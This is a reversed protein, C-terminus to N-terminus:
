QVAAHSSEVSLLDFSKLELTQWAPLFSLAGFVLAIAGAAIAAAKPPLVSSARELM